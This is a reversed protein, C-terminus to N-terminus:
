GYSEKKPNPILMHWVETLEDTEPNTPDTVFAIFNEAPIVYYLALPTKGLTSRLERILDAQAKHTKSLTAQFAHVKGTTDKYIFDFLPQRPNISHFLTLSDGKSDVVAKAIDLGLRIANCGGLMLNTENKYSQDTKGCCPRCLFFRSPPTSMLKRCYTEFHEWGVKDDQLILNWLDAMFKYVVNEAVSPSIITVLPTSFPIKEPTQAMAYGIIASRPQNSGFSGVADLKGEVIQQAQRVTLAEIAENQSRLVRGLYDEHLIIHRPVGGVVRFRAEVEEGTIVTSSLYPQAMLIEHLDWLPFYRFTGIVDDRLKDFENGGWHRENPSSVIITRAKLSTKPLCSDSTSGPDVIYFTSPEKLSNVGRIGDKEPHVNVVYGGEDNWAFEWFYDETRLRYVVTKKEELLMRILFPTSTTKGIGPTGVACVRVRMNPISVARICEEWFPQTINRIVIDRESDSELKIVGRMVRMGNSGPIEEIEKMISTFFESGRNQAVIKDDDRSEADNDHALSDIVSYRTLAISPRILRSTSFAHCRAFCSAVM